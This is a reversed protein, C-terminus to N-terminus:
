RRVRARNWEVAREKNSVIMQWNRELEEQDFQILYTIYKPTFPRDYNGNIWCVHMRAWQTGLMYTYAKVQWMWLREKLMERTRCSKWTLKFEEVVIKTPLIRTVSWGDPSGAIGDQEVEGPQWEMEPYLGAAWQEWAMGLCMRLPMIDPDDLDWELKKQEWADKEEAATPPHDPSPMSGFHLYRLIDTVHVGGSREIHSIKRPHIKEIDTWEISIEKEELVIAM